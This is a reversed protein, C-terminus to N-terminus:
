EQPMLRTLRYSKVLSHFDTSIIFIYFFFFHLVFVNEAQLGSYGYNQDIGTSLQQTALVTRFFLVPDPDSLEFLM